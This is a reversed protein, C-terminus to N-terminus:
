ETFFNKKEINVWRRDMSVTGDNILKLHNICESVSSFIEDVSAIAFMWDPCSYAGEPSIVFVPKKQREAVVCEDVTGWTPIKKDVSAILINSYDVARLDWRRIKKMISRLEEFKGERRLSQMYERSAGIEFQEENDKGKDCPDIVSLPLNNQEILRKFDERWVVGHDQMAEIPGSLYATYNNLHQHDKNDM